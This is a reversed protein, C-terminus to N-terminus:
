SNESTNIIINTGTTAVIPSANYAYNITHPHPPASPLNSMTIRSQEDIKKKEIEKFEITNKVADIFIKINKVKRINEDVILSKLESHRIQCSQLYKLNKTEDNLEAYLDRSTISNIESTKNIEKIIENIKEAINKKDQEITTMKPKLEELEETMRIYQDEMYELNQLKLIIKAFLDPCKHSSLYGTNGQLNILTPNFRAKLYTYWKPNTEKTYKNLFIDGNYVDCCYYINERMIKKFYACNMMYHENDSSNYKYGDKDLFLLLQHYSNDLVSVTSVHKMELLQEIFLNSIEEDMVNFDKTKFM